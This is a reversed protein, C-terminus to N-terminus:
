DSNKVAARPNEYLAQVFPNRPNFQLSRQYYGRAAEFRGKRAALDGLLAWTLHDRPEAKVAELLTARADRYRGLRAYAASKIYYRPCRRRRQARAVPQRAAPGRGSGLALTDRADIRDKDAFALRGVSDAAAVAAVGSWARGRRDAHLDLASAAEGVAGRAGSGRLAGRGHRGPHQAALRREYPRALGVFAGGAAVAVMRREPRERAHRSQRWLGAAVAGVFLLLFLWAWSGSSPSCRCRCATRSASTRARAGSSPLLPRRLQRRGAWPAAADKFEHWAVRWYDYRYGGGSLFRTGGPDDVRLNVFDDYQQDVKDVPNGVAVLGALLAVAVLARQM